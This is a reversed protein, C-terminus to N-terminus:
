KEGGEATDKPKEGLQKYLYHAGVGVATAGAAVMRSCGPGHQHRRLQHKALPEYLPSLEKYFNPSACGHCPGNAGVCWNVKSNWRRVCCDAYTVPGKCGQKFMCLKM